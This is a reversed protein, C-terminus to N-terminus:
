NTGADPTIIKVTGDPQMVWTGTAPSSKVSGNVLIPRAPQEVVAGGPTIVVVGGGGVKAVPGAQTVVPGGVVFPNTLIQQPQAAAQQAAAQAAQQEAIETRDRLTALSKEDQTLRQQLTSTQNQAQKTKNELEALHTQVAMEAQYISVLDKIDQSADSGPHDRDFKQLALIRDRTALSQYSPDSLLMDLLANTRTRTAQMETQEQAEEAKIKEYNALPTLNVEEVVGAASVMVTGRDFMYLVEDSMDFQGNPRGLIQLAHAVSDGPLPDTTTAPAPAPASAEAPTPAPTAAPPTPVLVPEAAAGPQPPLPMAGAMPSTADPMSEAALALPLALLAAAILPTYRTKM